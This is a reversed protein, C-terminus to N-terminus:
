IISIFYLKLEFYRNEIERNQVLLQSALLEKSFKKWLFVDGDIHIFPTTQLSYTRIKSLAWVSTNYTNLEDLVVHVNTYPLKLQEILLDYGTKDTYLEVEDYLRRLLRCSLSWSQIHSSADHWGFSNDLLHKKNGSWFTQVVKM